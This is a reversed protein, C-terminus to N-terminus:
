VHAYLIIKLRALYLKRHTTSVVFLFNLNFSARIFFHPLRDPGVVAVGHSGLPGQGTLEVALGDLLARGNPM